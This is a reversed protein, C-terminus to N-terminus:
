GHFVYPVRRLPPSPRGPERAVLVLLSRRVALDEVPRHAFRPALPLRRLVELHEPTPELRREEVPEFGADRFLALYEDHRLRNQFYVGPSCFSWVRDSYRLFNYPSIRRDFYSYHDQYDIRVSMVGGPKLIRRCEKLIVAIDRGPIHELTNTSTICDVAGPELGTHGADCPARYFIGYERDLVNLCERWGRPPVRRAPRRPLSIGSLGKELRAVADNVLEPKLLPRIDVLIQRNVGLAWFALPITLAWGAGFEYFAASELDHRAHRRYNEVHDAAGLVMSRFKQDSHPLNHTLHVQFQYNLSEGYPLMAFARKLLAKTKWGRGLRTM